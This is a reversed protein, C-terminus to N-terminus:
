PLLNYSVLPTNRVRLIKSRCNFRWTCIDNKKEIKCMGRAMCTTTANTINLVGRMCVRRCHWWTYYNCPLKFGVSIHRRVKVRLFSCVHSLSGYAISREQERIERTTWRHNRHSSPTDLSQELNHHVPNCLPPPSARTSSTQPFIIYNQHLPSHVPTLFNSCSRHLPTDPLFPNFVLNSM